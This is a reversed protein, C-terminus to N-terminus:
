GGGGAAAQRAARELAENAFRKAMRALERWQAEEAQSAAVSEDTGTAALWAAWCRGYQREVDLPTM